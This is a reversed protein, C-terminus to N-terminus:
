GHWQGAGGPSRWPKSGSERARNSVETNVHRQLAILAHHDLQDVGEGNAYVPTMPKGNFTPRAKEADLGRSYESVPVNGGKPANGNHREPGHGCDDCTEGGSFLGSSCCDCPPEASADILGGQGDPVPHTIWDPTTTSALTRPQNWCTEAMKRHLDALTTATSFLLGTQMGSAVADAADHLDTGSELTERQGEALALWNEAAALHGDATEATSEYPIEDSM